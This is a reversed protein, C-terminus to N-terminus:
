KRLRFWRLAYLLAAAGVFASILAGIANTATLGIIGLLYGGLLAGVVGVILSEILSIRKRRRKDVFALALFGAILGTIIFQMWTPIILTFDSLPHDKAQKASM